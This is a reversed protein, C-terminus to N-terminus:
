VHGVFQRRANSREPRLQRFAMSCYRASLRIPLDLDAGLCAERLQFPQLDPLRRAGGVGDESFQPVICATTTQSDVVM